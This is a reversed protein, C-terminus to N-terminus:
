KTAKKHAEILKKQLSEIEKASVAGDGNADMAKHRLEADKLFEAKSVKGNSDDDMRSFSEKIAKQDASDKNTDIKKSKALANFPVMYDRMDFNGDKNGDYMNFQKEALQKAAALTVDGNKNTKVTVPAVKTEKKQEAAAAPFVSASVLLLALTLTLRTM